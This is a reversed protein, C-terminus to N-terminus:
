QMTQTLDYRTNRGASGEVQYILGYAILQTIDRKATSVSTNTMSAYKKTSLGGKFHETAIDLVKNIVKLQRENLPFERARDWFKTKQV